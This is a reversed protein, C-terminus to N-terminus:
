TAELMSRLKSVTNWNRNTARLGLRREWPYAALKSRGLGNPCRLYMVRDGFRYEDPEFQGPDIARLREEDPPASLFSVHLETPRAVSDPFPNAEIVAALEEQSRIMVSVELGSDQAIRDEIERGLETPDNRASTFVVNGSQIYTAVETHGLASIADRLDAMSLKKNGGVNIGRILAVYRMISKCPHELREQSYERVPVIVFEPFM